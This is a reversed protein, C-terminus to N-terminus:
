MAQDNNNITSKLDNVDQKVDRLESVVTNVEKVVGHIACTLEKFGTMLKDERKSAEKKLLEEREESKELLMAERHEATQRSIELENILREDADEKELRLSEERARAENARTSDLKDRKKDRKLLTAILIIFLFPVILGNSVFVSFEQPTMNTIMDFM